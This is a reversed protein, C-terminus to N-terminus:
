RLVTSKVAVLSQLSVKWNPNPHATRRQIINLLVFMFSYHYRFSRDALDLNYEVQKQFSIAYARDPIKFGGTGILVPNPVTSITIICVTQERM